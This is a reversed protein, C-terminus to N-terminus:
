GQRLAEAISQVASATRCLMDIGYLEVVDGVIRSKGCDVGIEVKNSCFYPEIQGLLTLFKDVPCGDEGIHFLNQRSPTGNAQIHGPPRVVADLAHELDQGLLGSFDTTGLNFLVQFPCYEMATYQATRTDLGDLDVSIFVVDVEGAFCSLQEDAGGALQKWDAFSVRESIQEPTDSLVLRRRSDPVGLVMLQSITGEAILTSFVNGKWLRNNIDYIDAHADLCLVGIRLTPNLKKCSRLVPGSTTHTDSLFVVNGSSVVGVLDDTLFRYESLPIDMHALNIDTAQQLQYNDAIWPADGVLPLIEAYEHLLTSIYPIEEYKFKHGLRGWLLELNHEAQRTSFAAQKERSYPLKEEQIHPLSILM